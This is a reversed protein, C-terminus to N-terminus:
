QHVEVTPHLPEKAPSEADIGLRSRADKAEPVGLREALRLAETWAVHAAALDGTASCVDGLVLLTRAAGLPMDLKRFLALAANLDREALAYARRKLHLVGLTRL